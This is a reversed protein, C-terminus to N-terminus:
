IGQSEFFAKTNPERRLFDKVSVLEERTSGVELIKTRYEMGVKILEKKTKAEGFKSYIDQAYVLAWMYSYYGADYGDMHGFGAPFYTEKPLKNSTFKNYLDNYTKVIDKPRKTGHIEFDFFCFLLQRSVDTAMMFNKNAIIKKVTTVDLSKGTIYHKSINKLHKEEYVFNELMQSPAEVFDWTVNTGSQSEFSAKTLVTHLAHGFEHFLTEVDRLSLLSPVKKTPSAFNCVLACIPMMYDGKRWGMQFGNTAHTVMAHGYKGKRPHLDMYIYGLTEKSKKDSLKLVKVSKEWVPIEKTYSFTIGLLEGYLNLMEVTTNECEFYDKLMDSDLSTTQEYLKNSYYSVDSFEAISKTGLDASKLKDLVSKEQQAKKQVRKYMKEIFERATKENKAMRSSLTKEIHNPYGLLIATEHRLKTLESLISINIKGGKQFMLTALEKRKKPDVAFKMFTLCVSGDAPVIYKATKKDKLLAAVTKAPVGELEKENCLIHDDTANINFRFNSALAFQKKLLTKIKRQDEKGLEFGLNKYEKFTDEVFKIESQMLSKKEQKYNGLYYEKFAQYLKPDYVIDILSKEYEQEAKQSLKRINEKPSLNMLIHVLLVNHEIGYSLSELAFATNEFTRQEKSIVIIDLARKQIKLVSKKPIQEITKASWTPFSYISEDIIKKLKM